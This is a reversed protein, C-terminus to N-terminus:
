CPICNSTGTVTDHIRIFTPNSLRRCIFLSNSYELIDSCTNDVGYYAILKEFPFEQCGFTDETTPSRLRVSNISPAKTTADYTVEIEDAYTYLGETDGSCDDSAFAEWYNYCFVDHMCSLIILLVLTKM